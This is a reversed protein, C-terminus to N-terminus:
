PVTQMHSVERSTDKEGLVMQDCVFSKKNKLKWVHKSLETDNQYKKNRLSKVHNRYRAKCEDATIGICTQIKDNDATTVEAQYIM